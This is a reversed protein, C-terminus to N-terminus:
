LLYQGSILFSLLTQRAQRAVCTLLQLLRQLSVAQMLLM